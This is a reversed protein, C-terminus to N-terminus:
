EWELRVRASMVAISTLSAISLAIHVLAVKAVDSTPSNAMLTYARVALNSEGPPAVLIALSVDGLLVLWVGALGKRSLPVVIRIFTRLWSAGSLIAAEEVGTTVRRIFAACLLAGIPLFRSVYAIVVIADTRYIDGLMGPRNWIGIIGIGAITAPVAFLVVWLMEAAHGVRPTSKARWYGLLTGIIMVISSASASWWLGNRIADVSITNGFALRGLRAELAVSGVLIAVTGLALAGLVVAVIRQHGHSWRVGAQAREARAVFPRRAFELSGLAAFASLAALPIATATALRFDYL